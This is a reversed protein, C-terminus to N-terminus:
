GRKERELALLMYFVFMAGGILTKSMGGCSALYTLGMLAHVIRHDLTFM